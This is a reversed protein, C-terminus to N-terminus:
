QRMLAVAIAVSTMAFAVGDLKPLWVGYKRILLVTVFYEFLRSVGVGILLGAVGGLAGGICMGGIFFVSRMVQLLMHRFSDGKALLVRETTISVVSVATGAALIQLMWGAEWYREDYFFRVIDQGLILMTWVIPLAASLLVWRVRFIKDRCHALDRKFLLKYVPFLVQNSLSRLTLLVFGSLLVAISYVGFEEVSLLKGLVLRDGQLLVFTFATSIFIWRGFRILSRWAERDFGFRNRYDAIMFHSLVATTVARSLVGGVLAWVSPYLFAWVIMVTLAVVQSILDLTVKKGPEVHRILTYQATSGFGLILTYLGVVPMMYLLEPAEYFVSVPWALVCVCVWLAVGRIVQITWATNLYAPDDGREDHVISGRLGIDSFMELGQVCIQILAMLGFAKPFLLRTLVLNSGLRIAHAMGQGVLTWTSASIMKAKLSPPAPGVVKESDSVVPGM